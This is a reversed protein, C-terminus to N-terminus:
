TETSNTTGRSPSPQGPHDVLLGTRSDSAPSPDSQQTSGLLATREDSDQPAELSTLNGHDSWTSPAANMVNPDVLGYPPTPGDTTNESEVTQSAGRFTKVWNLVSIRFGNRAGHEANRRIDAPDGLSPTSYANYDRSQTQRRYNLYVVWDCSRALINSLPPLTAGLLVGIVVPM